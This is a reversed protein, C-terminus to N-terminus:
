DGHKAEYEERDVVEKTDYARYVGPELEFEATDFPEDPVTISGDDNWITLLCACSLSLAEGDVNSAPIRFLVGDIHNINYTLDYEFRVGKAGIEYLQTMLTLEENPNYDEPFEATEICLQIHVGDRTFETIIADGNQALAERVSM